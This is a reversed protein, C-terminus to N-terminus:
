RTLINLIRAIVLASAPLTAPFVSRRPARFAKKPKLTGAIKGECLGRADPVARAVGKGVKVARGVLM